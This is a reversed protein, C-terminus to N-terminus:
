KLKDNIKKLIDNTLNSESNGVFINKSDFLINISKEKMYDNIIPSFLKLIKELEQKKFKNFEDVAQNKESTFKKVKEKFAIVEKNFDDESIINKKNKISLELDILIKNKKELKIVNKKNLEQISNLTKKGVNSNQIIYDVDIFGTKDNALLSNVPLIFLIIAFTLKLFFNM